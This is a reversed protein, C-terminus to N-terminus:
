REISFLKVNGRLLFAFLFARFSAAFFTYVFIGSPLAFIIIKLCSGFHCLTVKVDLISYVHNTILGMAEAALKKADNENRSAEDDPYACCSAGMLFRSDRYSLIKAWLLNFNEDQSLGDGSAACPSSVEMSDSVKLQGNASGFRLLECPAGSLLAFGEYMNGGELMAYSGFLKAAAKEILPVWLQDGSLGGKGFVLDGCQPRRMKCPLM